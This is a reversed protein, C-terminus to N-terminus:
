EGDEGGNIEKSIIELAEQQSEEKEIGFIVKADFFNNENRIEKTISRSFRRLMYLTNTIYDLEFTYLKVENKDYVDIVLKSSRDGYLKKNEISQFYKIEKEPLGDLLDYIKNMFINYNRFKNVFDQSEKLLKLCYFQEANLKNMFYLSRVDNNYKFLRNFDEIDRQKKTELIKQLVEIYSPSYLNVFDGIINYLEKILFSPENEYKNIYKQIYENRFDKKYTNFDIWDQLQKGNFYSDPDKKNKIYDSNEIFFTHRYIFQSSNKNKKSSLAYLLEEQRNVGSDDGDFLVTLKTPHINNLIKNQELTMSTTLVAVVNHVGILNLRIVDFCGEVLFLENNIPIYHKAKNLNFLYQKPAFNPYIERYKDNISLEKYRLDSSESIDRGILSVINNEDDYVPIIIRGLLQFCGYSNYIHIEELLEKNLNPCQKDVIKDIDEQNKIFGLNFTDIAEKGINRDKLYQQAQKCSLLSLNYHGLKVVWNFFNILEKEADSFSRSKKTKENNINLGYKKILEICAMETNPLRNFDRYLTVVNGSHGTAYCYFIQYLESIKFSATNETKYFTKYTINWKINKNKISDPEGLLDKAVDQIKLQKCIEQEYRIVDVTTEM